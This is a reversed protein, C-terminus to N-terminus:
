RIGNLLEALEDMEGTGAAMRELQTIIAQKRMRAERLQQWQPRARHYVDGSKGTVAYVTGHRNVYNQLTTEEAIVCALTDIVRRVGPTVEMQKGYDAALQEALENQKKNM